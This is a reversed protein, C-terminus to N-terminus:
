ADEYTLCWWGNIFGPNTVAISDSIVLYKIYRGFLDFAYDKTIQVGQAVLPVVKQTFDAYLQNSNM